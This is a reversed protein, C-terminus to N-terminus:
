FQIKIGGSVQNNSFVEAGIYVKKYKIYGNINYFTKKSDLDRGISSGVIYSINKPKEKELPISQIDISSVEIFDPVKIDYDFLGDKRQAIVGKIEIPELNFSSIGKKTNLNINSKYTVFPKNKNPYYDVIKLTDELLQLSDIDKEIYKFKYKTQTVM